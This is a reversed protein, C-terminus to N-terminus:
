LLAQDLTEQQLKKFLQAYGPAPSSMAPSGAYRIEKGQPLCRKLRHWTSFWAGQNQPEEQCWVFNEAFSYKELERRLEDYPFPYLQEIRIIATDNKEMARRQALLEYYVKGSCLVVRKVKKPDMADVEPIVLQFEGNALEDLTSTALKHRLLSKPSMVILPLRVSRIM